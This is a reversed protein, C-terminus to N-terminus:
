SIEIGQQAAALEKELNQIEVADAKVSSLAVDFPKLMAIYKKAEELGSGTIKSLFYYSAELPLAQLYLANQQIGERQAKELVKNIEIVGLAEKEKWQTKNNIFDIFRNLDEQAEFKVAYVKKSIREKTEDLNKQCAEIRAQDLSNLITEGLDESQLQVVTGKLTDTKKKAM